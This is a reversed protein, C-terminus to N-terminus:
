AFLVITMIVSILNWIAHATITVYINRTKHYALGLVVGASFYSIFNIIESLVIEVNSVLIGSLIGTVVHILGFIAASIFVVNLGKKKSLGFFSARFVLEEVIPAAIVSVLCTLILPLAGSSLMGDIAAQNSSETNSLGLIMNLISIILSSAFNAVFLFVFTLAVFKAFTGVNGRILAFDSKLFNKMLVICTILIMVYIIVNIVANCTYIEVVSSPKFIRIVLESIVMSVVYFIIFYAAILISSNNRPAGWEINKVTYGNQYYNNNTSTKYADASETAEKLKNGCNSCFFSDNDVKSGCNPCFNNNTDQQEDFSSNVKLNNGCYPCYNENDDVVRLCKNCIM